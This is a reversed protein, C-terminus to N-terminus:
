KRFNLEYLHYYCWILHIILSQSVKVKPLFCDASNNQCVKRTCLYKLLVKCSMFDYLVICGVIFDSLKSLHGTNNLDHYAM